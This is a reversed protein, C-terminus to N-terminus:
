VLNGLCDDEGAQQWNQFGCGGFLFGDFHEVQAMRGGHVEDDGEHEAELVTCVEDLVDRGSPLEHGDVLAPARVTEPSALQSTQFRDDLSDSGDDLGSGYLFCGVPEFIPGEGFDFRGLAKAGGFDGVLLFVGGGCGWDDVVLHVLGGELVGEGVRLVELDGGLELVVPGGAVFGAPYGEAVEEVFEGQVGGELGLEAIFEEGEGRGEEVWGRGWVM